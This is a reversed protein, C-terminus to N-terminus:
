KKAAKKKAVPKKTTATKAAPKKATKGNVADPNFDLSQLIPNLVNAYKPGALITVYFALDGGKVNLAGLAVDVNNANKQIFIGGELNKNNIDIDSATKLNLGANDALTNIAAAIDNETCKSPQFPLATILFQQNDTMLVVAEIDNKALKTDTTILTTFGTINSTFTRVEQAAIAVPAIIAILAVIASLITKKM